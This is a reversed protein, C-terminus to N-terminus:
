LQNEQEMKVVYLMSKGKRVSFTVNDLARVGPFDKTIGKMQLAFTELGKEGGAIFYDSLHPLKGM